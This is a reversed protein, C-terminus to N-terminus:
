KKMQSGNLVVFGHVVISLSIRYQGRCISLYFWPIPQIDGALSSSSIEGTVDEEICNQQNRVEAEQAEPQSTRQSIESLADPRSVPSGLRFNAIGSIKDRRRIIDGYDLM